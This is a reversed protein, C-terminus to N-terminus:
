SAALDERHLREDLQAFIRQRVVADDLTRAMTEIHAVDASNLYADVSHPAVRFIGPLASSSVVENDDFLQEGLKEGPRLGTIKIEIDKHGSRAIMDKAIDVISKQDGM